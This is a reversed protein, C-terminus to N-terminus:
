VYCDSFYYTLDMLHVLENDEAVISTEELMERYAASLGDEGFEIKGGILNYLGKFPDKARKCMLIKDCGRNYILLINYGQM